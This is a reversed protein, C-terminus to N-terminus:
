LSVAPRYDMRETTRAIAKRSAEILGLPAGREERLALAWEFSVLAEAYRGQDFFSKGACQWAFDRLGALRSDTECVSILKTFERSARSFERRTNWIQALRLRQHIECQIGVDADRAVALAKTVMEEAEDLRGAIRLLAGLEGLRLVHKAPDYQSHLRRHLLEIYTNLHNRDSPLERLESDLHISPRDMKEGGLRYIVRVYDSTELQAVALGILRHSFMRGVENIHAHPDM